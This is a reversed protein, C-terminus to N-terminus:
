FTDSLLFSRKISPIDTESYVCMDLRNADTACYPPEGWSEWWPMLGEFDKKFDKATVDLLNQQNDYTRTILGAEHTLRSHVRWQLLTDDFFPQSLEANLREIMMTEMKGRILYGADLHKFQGLRLMLNKTSQNPFSLIFQYRTNSLEARVRRLMERYTQFGDSFGPLIYAAVYQLYNYTSPENPDTLALPVLTSSAVVEDKNLGLIIIPPGLPTELFYRRLISEPINKKGFATEVGQKWSDFHTMFSKQDRCIVWELQIASVESPRSHM